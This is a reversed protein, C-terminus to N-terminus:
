VLTSLKLIHSNYVEQLMGRKFRVYMAYINSMIDSWLISLRM